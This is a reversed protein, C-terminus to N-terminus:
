ASRAENERWELSGASAPAAGASGADPEAQGSGPKGMDDALWLDPRSTLATELLKLNYAPRVKLSPV